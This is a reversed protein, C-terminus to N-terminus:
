SEQFCDERNFMSQDRKKFPKEYSYTRMLFFKYNRRDYASFLVSIRAKHQVNRRDIFCEFREGETIPIETVIPRDEELDVLSVMILKGPGGEFPGDNDAYDESEQHYCLIPYDTIWFRKPEKPNYAPRKLSIRTM